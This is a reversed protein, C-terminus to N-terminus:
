LESALKALGAKDQILKGLLVPQHFEELKQLLYQLTLKEGITLKGTVIKGVHSTYEFIKTLTEKGTVTIFIKKRQTNDTTEAILGAAVLRDIVAMGSTKEQINYNILDRKSIEGHTLLIALLTFDEPTQLPTGAIAKKTYFKAYRGMFFLLRSINNDLQYALEQAAQAEEGFRFEPSVTNVGAKELHSVLFGTFEPLTAEKGNEKEFTEALVLM